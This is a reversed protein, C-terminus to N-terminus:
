DTRAVLAQVFRGESVFGPRAHAVSDDTAYGKEGTKFDERAILVIPNNEVLWGSVQGDIRTLDRDFKEAFLKAYQVSEFVVGAPHVANNGVDIGRQKLDSIFKALEDRKGM